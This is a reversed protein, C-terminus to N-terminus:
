ISNLNNGSAQGVILSLALAFILFTLSHTLGDRKVMQTMGIIFPIEKLFYLAV